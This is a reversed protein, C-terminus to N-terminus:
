VTGGETAARVAVGVLGGESGNQDRGGIGEVLLRGFFQSFGRLVPEQPIQRRRIIENFAQM